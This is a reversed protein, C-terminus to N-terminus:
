MFLMEEIEINGHMITWEIEGVGIITDMCEMTGVQDKISHTETGDGITGLIGVMTLRIDQQGTGGFITDTGISIGLHSDMVMESCEIEGFSIKIGSIIKIWLM